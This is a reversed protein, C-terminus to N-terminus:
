IHILSLNYKILTIKYFPLQKVIGELNPHDASVFKTNWLGGFTKEEETEINLDLNDINLKIPLFILNTM